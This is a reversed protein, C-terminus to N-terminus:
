PSFISSEDSAISTLIYSKRKSSKQLSELSKVKWHHIGTIILTQKIFSSPLINEFLFALFPFLRAHVDGSKNTRIRYPGTILHSSRASMIITVTIACACDIASGVVALV